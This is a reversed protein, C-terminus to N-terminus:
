KKPITIKQGARTGKGLDPNAARLQAATVGYRQALVAVTEGPRVTHVTSARKSSAAAAQRPASSEAAPTVRRQTQQQTQPQRTTTGGNRSGSRGSAVTDRPRVPEPEDEVEPEVEPTPRDVIVTQRTLAKSSQQTTDVTVFNTVYNTIYRPGRALEAELYDIRKKYIENTRTLRELQPQIDRGVVAYAHSSALERKSYGIRDIVAERRPSNTYLRLHREYHYIAAAHDNMKEGNILGLELHAAANNPNSQLAREFSQIAGNWDMGSQRRKGELYHPDKEDAFESRKFQSCGVLSLALFLFLFLRWVPACKTM